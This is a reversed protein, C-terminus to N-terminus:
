VTVLSLEPFILQVHLYDEEGGWEERGKHRRGEGRGNREEGVGREEGM